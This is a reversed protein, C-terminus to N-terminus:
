NVDNSVWIFIRLVILSRHDLTIPRCMPEFSSLTTPTLFSRSNLYMPVLTASIMSIIPNPVENRIDKCIVRDHTMDIHRESGETGRKQLGISARRARMPWEGPFHEGKPSAHKWTDLTPGLYVRPGCPRPFPIGSPCGLPGSPDSNYLSAGFPM